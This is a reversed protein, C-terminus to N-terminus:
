RRSAGRRLEEERISERAVRAWAWWTLTTITCTWDLLMRLEYAFPLAQLCDPMEHQSPLLCTSLALPLCLGILTASWHLCALSAPKGIASSM